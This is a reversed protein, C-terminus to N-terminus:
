MGVSAVAILGIGLLFLALWVISWVIIQMARRYNKEFCLLAPYGLMVTSCFLASFIFTTLFALIGIAPFWQFIGDHLKGTLTVMLAFLLIYASVVATQLFGIKWASM